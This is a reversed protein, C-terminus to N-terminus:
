KTLGGKSRPVPNILQLLREVLKHYVWVEGQLRLMEDHELTKALRELTARREEELWGRLSVLLSTNERCAQVLVDTTM